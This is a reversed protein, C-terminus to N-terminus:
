EPSLSLFFSVPPCTARIHCFHPEYLTKTPFGSPFLESSFSLRLHSSLILISRYYTPQLCLSSQDQEAYPCAAHKQLHAVSCEPEM